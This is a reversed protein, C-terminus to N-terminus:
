ASPKLLEELKELPVPRSFFFGQAQHCGLDRLITADAETEVGEAIVKLRLARALSLIASVISRDRDQKTMGHVFARDIKLTDVPLRSLYALSSYGTGFDDLAINLGMDRLERLKFITADVDTMLLSETIELDIGGGDAVIQGLAARVEDVFSKRRLQVASVNIAIRPADRFQARWRQYTEKATVLVQRGAEVILGTDELVPIFDAPSVLKGEPGQWRMLGEVGVMRRSALDYKPQFHLFLEGNEVAKRLRNELELEETVRSNIQPAYFLYREGMEKAQKLAAEANRFVTDADAGDDPHIAIGAKAAVRLERGEIGFPDRFLASAETRRAVEAAGGVGPFMVAFLDGTIRAVRHIDGAAKHLRDGVARLLADGVHQGMADNISKFREIDFLLVAVSSQSRRAVSITDDLRDRFLARNPLGTLPDYHALYALQDQKAMLELAFSVNAGLENLVNVQDPDFFGAESAALSLVGAPKGEVILPVGAMAQVGAALLREPQRVHGDAAVDNAVVPVAERLARGALGSGSEDGRASSRLTPPEDGTWTGYWPLWNVDGTAPSLMGARAARLGGIDVAIRSIAELLEDRDRIRVLAWNIQSSFQRMRSLRDLRRRQEADALAREIAPPLRVLNTKLVYDTAGNKLARIAYDEGLTGSVFIFPVDPCLERALALASMGDYNPMAFDSVIVQPRFRGIEHRCDPESEVRRHEVRLGARKLERVELEADLPNDEILLLRIAANLM